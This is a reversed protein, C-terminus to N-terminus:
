DKIKKGDRIPLNDAALFDELARVAEMVDAKRKMHIARHLTHMIKKIDDPLELREVFSFISKLGVKKFGFESNKAGNKMFYLAETYNRKILCDLATGFSYGYGWDSIFELIEASSTQNTM